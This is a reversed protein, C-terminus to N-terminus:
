LILSGIGGNGSYQRKEATGSHHDCKYNYKAYSVFLSLFLYLNVAIFM